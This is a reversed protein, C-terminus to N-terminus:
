CPGVSPPRGPLPWPREEGGSPTELPKVSYGYHDTDSPYHRCPPASRKLRPQDALSPLPSQSTSSRVIECRTGQQTGRAACLPACVRVCSGKRRAISSRAAGITVHCTATCSSLESISAVSPSSAPDTLWSFLRGTRRTARQKNRKTEAHSEAVPAVRARRLDGSSLGRTRRQVRAPECFETRDALAPLPSPKHNRRVVAHRVVCATVRSSGRLALHHELAVFNAGVAELCFLVQANLQVVLLSAAKVDVRVGDFLVLLPDRHELLHSRCDWQAM